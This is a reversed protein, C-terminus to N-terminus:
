ARPDPAAAKKVAVVQDGLVEARSFTFSAGFFLIASAYFVWLMLVLVSGAADYLNAIENSGILYGILYEGLSFLVATLLASILIDRWKLRADTLYRFMLAFLLTMALLEVLLSDIVVLAHSFQGLWAALSLDLASIAADVILSVSLIFSLIILMAFSVLRHRIFQWIGKGMTDAPPVEFLRNLANQITVLATSATFLLIVIGVLKALLNPHEINLGEITGMLQRAGEEGVLAGIESFVTERIEVEQYMLEGTWFVIFLMPPLSFVMYYALAASQTPMDTDVFRGIAAKLVDLHIGFQASLRSL